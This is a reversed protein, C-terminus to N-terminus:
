NLISTEHQYGVMYVFFGKWRMSPHIADREARWAEAWRLFEHKLLLPYQSHAMNFYTQILFQESEPDLAPTELPM